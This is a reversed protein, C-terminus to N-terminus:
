VPQAQVASLIMGDTIVGSEQGPFDPPPDTALASAWADEWGPSAAIMLMRENTWNRPDPKGEQVACAAVRAALDTDASMQAIDFYGMVTLVGQRPEDSEGPPLAVNM